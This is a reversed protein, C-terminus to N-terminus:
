DGQAAGDWPRYGPIGSAATQVQDNLWRRLYAADRRGIGIGWSSLGVYFAIFGLPLLGALVDLGTVQGAILAGLFVLFFASVGGLWVVSFLKVLPHWGIKGALRCGTLSPDLRGRFIPSWSNRIGVRGASLRVWHEGVRGVVRYGGLGGFSFGARLYSVSAARMRERAVHEPLPSELEIREDRWADFWTKM